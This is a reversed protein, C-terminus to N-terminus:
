QLTCGSKNISVPGQGGDEVGYTSDRGGHASSGGDLAADLLAMEPFADSAKISPDLEASLFCAICGFSFFVLRSVMDSELAM